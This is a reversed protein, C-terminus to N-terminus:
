RKCICTVIYPVIHTRNLTSDMCHKSFVKQTAASCVHAASRLAHEVGKCHNVLTRIQTKIGSSQGAMSDIAQEIELFWLQQQADSSPMLALLWLTSCISCVM